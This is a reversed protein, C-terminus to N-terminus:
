ARTTAMGHAAEHLLTNITASGGSRVGNGAILQGAVFMESRRKRGTHWRDACVHGFTAYGRGGCATGTIGIVEPM